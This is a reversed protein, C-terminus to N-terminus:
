GQSSGRTPQGFPTGGLAPDGKGVYLNMWMRQVAGRWGV